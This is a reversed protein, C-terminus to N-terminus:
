YNNVLNYLARDATEEFFIGEAELTEDNRDSPKCYYLRFTWDCGGYEQVITFDRGGGEGHWERVRDENEKEGTDKTMAWHIQVQTLFTQERDETTTNFQEM